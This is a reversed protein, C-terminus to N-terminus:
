RVNWLKLRNTTFLFLIKHEPGLGDMENLLQHLVTPTSLSEGFEAILDIDEMVIVSPTLERWGAANGSMGCNNVRFFSCSREMWIRYSGSSWMLNVPVQLGTVCCDSMAFSGYRAADILEMQRDPLVVDDRDIPMLKPLRIQAGTNRVWPAVSWLLSSRAAICLHTQSM